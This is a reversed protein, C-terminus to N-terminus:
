IVMYYIWSAVKRSWPYALQSEPHHKSTVVIDHSGDELMNILRQIQSPHLDLDADLFVIIDGSSYDFGTRLAMGKGMNYPNRAVVIRDFLKAAREIEELTNDYSGDDVAVIEASMGAEYLIKCTTSINEFIHTGENFAPMIISITKNM